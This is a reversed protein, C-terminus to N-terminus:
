VGAGFRLEERTKLPDPRVAIWQPWSSMASLDGDSPYLRLLHGNGLIGRLLVIAGASVFVQHYDHILPESYAAKGRRWYREARV